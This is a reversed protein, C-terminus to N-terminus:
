LDTKLLGANEVQFVIQTERYTKGDPIIMNLPKQPEHKKWFRYFVAVAVIVIILIVIVVVSVIAIVYSNTGCDNLLVNTLSTYKDSSRDMKFYVSNAYQLLFHNHRFQDAQNCNIANTFKLDTIRLYFEPAVNFRIPFDTSNVINSMFHIDMQHQKVEEGVHIGSLALHNIQSFQNREISIRGNVNMRFAEAELRDVTNEAFKFNKVDDLDIAHSSITAFSCNSILFDNTITLANFTRSPLHSRFSTNRLVLDEVHLRKLSQSDISDIETNEISISHIIQHASTISYANFKGIFCNNFSISDIDGSMSYSVIEQFNVNYFILNVKLSPLRRTFQLSNQELTLRKINVFRIHDIYSVDHFTGQKVIVNKCNQVIVDKFNGTLPQLVFPKNRNRCDCTLDGNVYNHQCDLQKPELFNGTIEICNIKLLIALFILAWLVTIEM